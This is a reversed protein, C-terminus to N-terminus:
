TDSTSKPGRQMAKKLIALEEDTLASPDIHSPSMSKDSSTHDVEQKDKWDSMNKLAFIIMPASGTGGGEVAVRMAQSEWWKAALAKGTNLAEMFEPHKSAWVNITARSCPITAAFSVVSSGDRMHEIIKECYEPRYDTPRGAAVM